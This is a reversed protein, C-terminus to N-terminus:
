RQKGHHVDLHIVVGSSAKQRTALARRLQLACSGCCALDTLFPQQSVVGLSGCTDWLDARCFSVARKYHISEGPPLAMRRNRRPPAANARVGAFDWLCFCLGSGSTDLQKTLHFNASGDFADEPRVRDGRLLILTSRLVFPFGAALSTNAYPMHGPTSSKRTCFRNRLCPMRARHLTSQM